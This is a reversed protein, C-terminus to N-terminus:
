SNTGQLAALCWEPFSIENQGSNLRQYFVYNRMVLKIYTRTEEYPVDEIFELVDGKYRSKIWGSIAKESANYSAVTPIFEGQWHKLLGKIFSTGLPINIEPTYLEEHHEFPLGSDASAKRAAEPILQMLGFADAGSRAYPNFASEQRMIAYILERPLEFQKSAREVVQGWPQPFLLEPHSDLLATRTEIPLEQIRNFVIQFGGARAYLGLIDVLQEQSYGSRREKTTSDLFRLSLDTEGTAVLWEFVLSEDPFLSASDKASAPARVDPKAMSPLPRALERFSLLGYWGVRDKEILWEFQKKADDTRGVQHLTKGLWFRNRAAISGVGTDDDSVLKELSAIADTLKGAKRLNWAQYWLIKGRLDRNDIRGIDITSLLKLSSEFRGAEEEIRARTFVSEATSVRDKVDREAALLIQRAKSPNNDTWVARALILRTELYRALLTRAEQPNKKFLKNGPKLFRVRAFESYDATAAIYKEIKKELKFSMRIGDLASLKEIDSSDKDGILKHYYSRADNFDRNRRFDAAVSAFQERKPELLFRPATDELLSTYAPLEENNLEKALAISRQYLHVRDTSAKEFKAVRASLKMENLKDGTKISRKLMSRLVAEEMWPDLKEALVQDINPLDTQSEPCSETARVRAISYLPFQKHKLVDNWLACAKLPDSNAWLLAQQYRVQVLLAQNAPDAVHRNELERDVELPKKGYTETHPAPPYAYHLTQRPSITSCACLFAGVLATNFFVARIGFKM